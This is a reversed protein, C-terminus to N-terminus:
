EELNIEVYPKIILNFREDSCNMMEVFEKNMLDIRLTSRFQIYQLYQIPINLAESLKKLDKNSAPRKGREINSIQTQNIKTKEELEKQSIRKKFRVDTLFKGLTVITM